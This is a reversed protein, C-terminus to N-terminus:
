CIFGVYVCVSLYDCGFFSIFYSSELIVSLFYCLVAGISLLGLILLVCFSLFSSDGGRQSTRIPRVVAAVVVGVAM